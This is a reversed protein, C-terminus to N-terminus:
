FYFQNPRYYDGFVNGAIETKLQFIVKVTARDMLEDKMKVETPGYVAVLVSTKDQIINNSLIDCFIILKSVTYKASGDARNLLGQESSPPRLQNFLRGDRREM